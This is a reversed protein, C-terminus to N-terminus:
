RALELRAQYQAAKDPRGWARYLDVLRAITADLDRRPPPTTADLDRIAELLVTEAEDYRALATLAAGLLSRTAAVSWDDEPLIRRRNPVLTPALLRIRLGDRLLPEAAGPQGRALQV